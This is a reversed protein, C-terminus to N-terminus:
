KSEEMKVNENLIETHPEPHEDKQMHTASEAKVNIESKTDVERVDVTSTSTHSDKMEEVSENKVQGGPDIKLITEKEQAIDKSGETHSNHTETSSTGEEEKKEKPASLVKGKNRSQEEDWAVKEDFTLDGVAVWKMTKFGANLSPARLVKAYKRAPGSAINRRLSILVDSHSIAAAQADSRRKNKRKYPQHQKSANISAISSRAVRTSRRATSPASTPTPSQFM